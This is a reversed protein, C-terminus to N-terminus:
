YYYYHYILMTIRNSNCYYEIRRVKWQHALELLRLKQQQTDDDPFIYDYYEEWTDSGTGGIAESEEVKRRRKVVKPMQRNVQDQTEATGHQTEM